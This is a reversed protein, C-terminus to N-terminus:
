LGIRNILTNVVDIALGVQHSPGYVGTLHWSVGPWAAIDTLTSEPHLLRWNVGRRPFRSPNQM